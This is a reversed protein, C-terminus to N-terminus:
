NFLMGNNWDKLAKSIGYSLRRTFRLAKSGFSQNLNM